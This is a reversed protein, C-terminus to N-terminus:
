ESNGARGFVRGVNEEFDGDAKFDAVLSGNDLAIARTVLPAVLRMNHEVVLLTVQPRAEAIDRLTAIINGAAAPSLGATPEDLMLISPAQVLIMALAVIQRQGVSLQGARRGRLQEIAELLSDQLPACAGRSREAGLCALELNETVTLHPFVNDAQLLYGLGRRHRERVSAATVNCAGIQIRSNSSQIKCMGAIARLLTSKGCGNRGFILLREGATCALSVSHLVPQDGYGAVLNSVELVVPEMTGDVM